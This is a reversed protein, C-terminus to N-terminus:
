SPLGNPRPHYRGTHRGIRLGPHRPDGAIDTSHRGSLAVVDTVPHQSQPQGESDPHDGDTEGHTHTNRNADTGTHADTGIHTRTDAGADTDPCAYTRTHTHASGAGRRYGCQDHLSSYLM